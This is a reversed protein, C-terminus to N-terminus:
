DRPDTVVQGTLYLLYDEDFGGKCCYDHTLNTDYGTTEYSVDIDWNSLKKQEEAINEHTDVKFLVGEIKDCYGKAKLWAIEVKSLDAKHLVIAELKKYNVYM